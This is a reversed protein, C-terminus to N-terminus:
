DHAASDNPALAGAARPWRSILTALLLALLCIGVVLANAYRTFPTAGERPQVQASLVQAQFLASTQQVHGDFDIVASIGNNTARVLARGAEAARVRAIQLHQYPAVSGGFWGDNSVNVLVSAEPLFRILEEGFVDEYCISIGLQEGAVGLPMQREPGATFDTYPLSMLRMWNRVFDPVPFYEGFPVLHRKYYQSLRGQDHAFVANYYRRERFDFHVMGLLMATGQAAGDDFLRQLYAQEEQLLAPIAAEPWIVLDAGWHPETLDRYLIKTAELQEPLWKRDQTIGGQVVRVELADRVPTTWPVQALRASGTWLAAVLLVSIVKLWVSRGLLLSILAGATFVVALSMAFVGGLPALGRLPSDIQGYGLALWPFGSFLWGRTHELLTWAAPLVVLWRLAGTPAFLRNAFYGLAALYLALWAMLALMLPIAVLLPAEGFQHLSIYLWYMGALYAAFGFLFGRKAATRPSAGEWTLLLCAVSIPALWYWAFPAFALPVSLGALLALMHGPRGALLRLLRAIPAPHTAAYGDPSRM